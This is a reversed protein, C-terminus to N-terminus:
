KFCEFQLLTQLAWRTSEAGGVDEGSQECNPCIWTSQLTSALTTESARTSPAECVRSPFKKERHRCVVGTASLVGVHLGDLRESIEDLM